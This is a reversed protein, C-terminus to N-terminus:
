LTSHNLGCSFVTFPTQFSSVFWVSLNNDFNYWAALLHFVHIKKLFVLNQNCKTILILNGAGRSFNVDSPLSEQM